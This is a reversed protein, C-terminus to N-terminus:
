PDNSRHEGMTTPALKQQTTRSAVHQSRDSEVAVYSPLRSCGANHFPRHLLTRLRRLLFEHRDLFTGVCYRLHHRM